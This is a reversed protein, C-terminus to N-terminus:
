PGLCADNKTQGNPDTEDEMTALQARLLHASSLLSSKWSSVVRATWSEDYTSLMKLDM